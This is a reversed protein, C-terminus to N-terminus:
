GGVHETITYEKSFNILPVHYTYKLLIRKMAVDTYGDEEIVVEYGDETAQSVVEAMVGESLDHNRLHESISTAYARANNVIINQQVCTIGVWLFVVLFLFLVFFEIINKM